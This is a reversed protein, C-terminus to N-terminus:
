PINVYNLSLLKTKSQSSVWTKLEICNLKLSGTKERRMVVHALVNYEETTGSMFMKIENFIIMYNGYHFNISQVSEFM